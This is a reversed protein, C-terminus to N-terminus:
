DLFPLLYSGRWINGNDLQVTVIEGDMGLVAGPYSVRAQVVRVRLGFVFQEPKRQPIILRMSM